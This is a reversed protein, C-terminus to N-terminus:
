ARSVFEQSCDVKKGGATINFDIAYNSNANIMVKGLTTSEGAAATFAGGQSINSSGGNGSSQVDFRYEGTLATPSLITGELALMGNQSTKAVGCRLDSDSSNALGASAAIVALGLGLAITAINM